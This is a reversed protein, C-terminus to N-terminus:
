YTPIFSFLILLLVISGAIVLAVSSIWKGSSITLKAPIERDQNSQFFRWAISLFILSIILSLHFYPFPQQHLFSGSFLQTSGFIFVIIGLLLLEWATSTKM